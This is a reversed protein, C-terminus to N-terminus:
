KDWFSSRIHSLITPQSDTTPEGPKPISAKAIAEAIRVIDEDSLKLVHEKKSTAAEQPTTTPTETIPHPTQRGNDVVEVADNDATIDASASAEPNAAVDLIAGSLTANLQNDSGPEAFYKTNEM